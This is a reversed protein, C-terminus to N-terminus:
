IWIVSPTSLPFFFLEEDGEKIKDKAYIEVLLNSLM